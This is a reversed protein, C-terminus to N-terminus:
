RVFIPFFRSQEEGSMLDDRKKRVFKRCRLQASLLCIRLSIMLLVIWIRGMLSPMSGFFGNNGFFSDM